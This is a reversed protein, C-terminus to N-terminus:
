QEVEVTAAGREAPLEAAAAAHPAAAAAQLDGTSTVAAEPELAAVDMVAGEAEATDSQAAPQSLTRLLTAADQLVEETDMSDCTAAKADVETSPLAAPMPLELEPLPEEPGCVARHAM